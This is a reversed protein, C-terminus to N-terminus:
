YSRAILSRHLEHAFEEFKDTLAPTDEEAIVKRLGPEFLVILDVLSEYAVRARDLEEKLDSNRIWEETLEDYLDDFGEEFKAHQPSDDEDELAVLRERADERELTVDYARDRWYNQYENIEM